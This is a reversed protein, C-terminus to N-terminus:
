FPMWSHYYNMYSYKVGLFAKGPLKATERMDGCEEEALTSPVMMLTCIKHKYIIKNRYILQKKILFM